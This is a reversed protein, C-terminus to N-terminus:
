FVAAFYWSRAAALDPHIAIADDATKPTRRQRPIDSRLHWLGKRPQLTTVYMMGPWSYQFVASFAIEVHRQGLHFRFFSFYSRLHQMVIEEKTFIRFISFFDFRASKFWIPGETCAQHKEFDFQTDKLNFHGWKLNSQLSGSHQFLKKGM